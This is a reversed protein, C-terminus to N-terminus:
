AYTLRHLLLSERVGYIVLDHTFCLLQMQKFDKDEIM